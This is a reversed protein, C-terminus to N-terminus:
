AVGEADLRRAVFAVARASVEDLWQADDIVCVLARDGAVETLLGLVALGVLFPSPAPAERLGFATELAERQPAPLAPAADMMHACLQHLGAYALEMESESAVMREIRAHRAAGAGMRELLATKGIGAAGSVVLAGSRGARARGVLADLEALERARGRLAQAGPARAPDPRLVDIM